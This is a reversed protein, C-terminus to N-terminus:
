KGGDRRRPDVVNDRCFARLTDAASRHSRYMTKLKKVYGETTDFSMEPAGPPVNLTFRYTRQYRRARAACARVFPLHLVEPAFSAMSDNMLGDQTDRHHSRYWYKSKGFLYEVGDGACEAHYKSSLELLHGRSVVAHARPRRTTAPACAARGSVM